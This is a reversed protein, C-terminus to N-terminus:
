LGASAATMTGLRKPQPQVKLKARGEAQIYRPAIRRKVRETLTSRLYGGAMATRGENAFGAFGPAVSRAGEHEVWVLGNWRSEPLGVVAAGLLLM